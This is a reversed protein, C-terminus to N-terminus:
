NVTDVLKSTVLKFLKQFFGNNIKKGYSFTSLVCMRVCVCVSSLPRGIM